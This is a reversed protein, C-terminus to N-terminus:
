ILMDLDVNNMSVVKYTGTKIKEVLQYLLVDILEAGIFLSITSSCGTFICETGDELCPVTHSDNSLIAVIGDIGDEGKLKKWKYDSFVLQIKKM